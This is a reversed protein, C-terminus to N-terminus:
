PKQIWVGFGHSPLIVAGENDGQVTRGMYKEFGELALSVEVPAESLNVAVVVRSSDLSREFAFVEADSDTSIMTPWAGSAGNWLAKESSKLENLQTFLASWEYGNWDVTDKEFFRLRKTNPAEQGSYILPMGLLTSAVVTMAEANKGHREFVTGNWANEDHNTVFLMRYADRPFRQEEQRLFSRLSDIPWSRSGVQNMVHMGGWVYSMDFAREHHEPVDAEALMFVEPKLEEMALRVQNWFETPVKEAVDCRFGDIDAERIWYLMANQMAEYLGNEKGNDWDLQTVDWWDTGLPPQFNGLSDLLFFEKHEKTWRSDFATHNAVWDIIVKMGLAHAEDVLSKFDDLDGFEPNIAKYDTASYPSGLSGSGPEAIYNSANEGGKRNVEGIPHIPMVWLIDSGLAHIRPLDAELAAFTGEVTHQRVNVEYISANVSWSPHKLTPSVAHLPSTANAESTGETVPADGCGWTAIAMGILLGLIAKNM